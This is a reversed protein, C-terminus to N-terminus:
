QRAPHGLFTVTTQRRPAILRNDTIRNRAIAFNLTCGYRQRRRSTCNAAAHRILDTIHQLVSM